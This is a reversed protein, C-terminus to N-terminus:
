LKLQGFVKPVKIVLLISLQLFVQATTQLIRIVTRHIVMVIVAVTAKDIRANFMSAKAGRDARLALANHHAMGFMVIEIQAHLSEIAVGNSRLFRKTIFTLILLNRTRM